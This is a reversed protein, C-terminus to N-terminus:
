VGRVARLSRSSIEKESAPMVALSVMVFVLGKPTTIWHGFRRLRDRWARSSLLAAFGAAFFPLIQPIMQGIAQLPGALGALVFVALTGFGIM